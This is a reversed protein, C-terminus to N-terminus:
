RREEVFADLGNALERLRAALRRAAGGPDGHEHLDSPACDVGAVVVAELIARLHEAFGSAEVVVVLADKVRQALEDRESQRRLQERARAREENTREAM